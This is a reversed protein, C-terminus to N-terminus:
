MSVQRQLSKKHVDSRKNKTTQKVTLSKKKKFMHFPNLSVKDDYHLVPNRLSICNSGM